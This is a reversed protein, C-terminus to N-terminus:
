EFHSVKKKFIDLYRNIKSRNNQRIGAYEVRNSKHTLISVILRNCSIFGDSLKTDYFM